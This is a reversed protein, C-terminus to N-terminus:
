EFIQQKKNEAIIAIGKRIVKRLKMEQAFDLRDIEM